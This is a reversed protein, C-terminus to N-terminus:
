FEDDMASKKIEDNCFKVSYKTNSLAKWVINTTKEESLFQIKNVLEILLPLNLGTILYFNPRGVYKLFENNVSGGFVDTVIILEYNKYRELLRSIAENLDFDDEVYCDLSEVVKSEGYIIELSNKIGSAMRGHSAVIIKREM